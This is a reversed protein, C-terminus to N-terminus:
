QSFILVSYAGISVMAHYPLGDYEGQEALVDSSPHNQFDDSYGEWDSNFRLKWKGEAPFGISYSDHADRFFNAVIVVDDSAGGKDWRHFAIVNQVDNLHYVQTFQGCLGRTFGNHNCRLGILDRYLRVIGHFEDCQDWDVPITDRFSGGELFEQGQFLMPIGPSTFVMAAALTSRKQAYWGKPDNPNIEQPVRARGNAVEDHSESYIVRDFADDNYRYYIADRIAALSRQEDKPTIVAQRIPHVFMADWQSGFGAGGAGVEKTLWRNNQLDEAITIRGPFKQTIQSNIWQLLSWGEPLDQVSSGDVTRIFQTCDFRIGDIHYEELWMMANDLLYQRVEGRGYDPRTEGWPTVARDDNYFYIGGRGNESWGDFQWLDLDSPGLHNYVVDLIVAIGAQHARKIFKKFALPGGYDTEASFIHAPNYGWSREGAFEGVPMIQIANVGLKQLHGLRASISAFEGQHVVDEEDNFTGVHLEYIVLENWPVLTFDDGQWDFHTDHVIANGVSSTVERAYPDIRAFDGNPTSLLFKYQDGAHADAINIYWYGNEESKMQHKSGDWENFSGIVSVRKAHPAWMRFAVGQAHLISGMGAIKTKNDM